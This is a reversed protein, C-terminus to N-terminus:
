IPLSQTRARGEITSCSSSARLVRGCDFCQSDTAFASRWTSGKLTTVRGPAQGGFRVMGHRATGHRTTSNLPREPANGISSLTERVTRPATGGSAARRVQQCPAARAPTAAPLQNRSFWGDRAAAAGIHPVPAPAPTNPPRLGCFHFTM